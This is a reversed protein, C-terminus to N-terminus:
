CVMKRKRLYPLHRFMQHVSQNIPMKQKVDLMLLKFGLKRVMNIYKMLSEKILQFIIM